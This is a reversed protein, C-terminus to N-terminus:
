HHKGVTQNIFSVTDSENEPSISYSVREVGDNKQKLSPPKQFGASLGQKFGCTASRTIPINSVPYFPRLWVFLDENSKAASGSTAQQPTQTQPKGQPPPIAVRQQGRAVALTVVLLLCYESRKM